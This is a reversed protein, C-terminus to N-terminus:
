NTKIQSYSKFGKLVKFTLTHIHTVTDMMEQTQYMEFYLPQTKLPRM